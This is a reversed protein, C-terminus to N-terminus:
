NQVTIGYAVVRSPSFTEVSSDNVSILMLDNLGDAEFASMIKKIFNMKTCEKVHLAAFVLLVLIIALLKGLV